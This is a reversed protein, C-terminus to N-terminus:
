RPRCPRRWPGSSGRAARRTGISRGSSRASAGDALDRCTGQVAARRTGASLGMQRLRALGPRCRRTFIGLVFLKACAYAVRRAGHSRAIRGGRGYGSTDRGKGGEYAAWLESPNAAARLSRRKRTLEAGLRRAAGAFRRFRRRSPAERFGSAVSPPAAPPCRRDAGPAATAFIPLADRLSLPSRAAPRRHRLALSPLVPLPG